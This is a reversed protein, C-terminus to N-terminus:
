RATILKAGVYLFVAIAILMLIRSISDRAYQLFRDFIEFNEGTATTNIIDKGTTPIIEDQLSAL